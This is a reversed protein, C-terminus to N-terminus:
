LCGTSKNWCIGFTTTRIECKLCLAVFALYGEIM